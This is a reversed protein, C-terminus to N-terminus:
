RAPNMKGRISRLFEEYSIEGNGDRDFINFAIGIQKSTLGCRFDNMAKEFEKKDLTKSNNDDAILFKKGIGIIGRAGRAAIKARIQLIVQKETANEPLIEDKSVIKRAEAARGFIDNDGKGKPEENKWGKTGTGKRSEETLKWANEMMLQFYSDEDISCSIMSYYEEFEDKTVIHDPGEKERINHAVEFTEM